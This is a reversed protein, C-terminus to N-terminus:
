LSRIPSCSFIMLSLTCAATQPRPTGSWAIWSSKLRMHKQCCGRPSTKSFYFSSHLCLLQLTVKIWGFYLVYVAWIYAAKRSCKESLRLFYSSWHCKQIVGSDAALSWTASNQRMEELTWPREWIQAGKESQESRSPGNAMGEPMASM